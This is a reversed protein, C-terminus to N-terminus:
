LFCRFHPFLDLAKQVLTHVLYFVSFGKFYLSEAVEFLTKKATTRAQCPCGFCGTPGEDLPSKSTLLFDFIIFHTYWTHTSNHKSLM